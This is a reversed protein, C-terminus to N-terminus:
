GVVDQMLQEMRRYHSGQWYIKQCVACRWFERHDRAINDPLQDKAEVVSIPELLGNCRLCRTFPKVLRQLDFREIVERLQARPATARVWYGHTVASRKLLGQDRTLLIRREEKSTQALIADHADVSWLTDFGLMRLYAALRGLHGDLVFRVERLPQPRLRIVPTIDFSEFVPYVAVRDGEQLLYAWDVPRGNVLILDVETHPVGLSEILHKVSPTGRWEVEFAVQKRSPPLFDNLEQYFRFTASPM